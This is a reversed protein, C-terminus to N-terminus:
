RPVELQSHRETLFGLLRPWTPMAETGLGSGPWGRGWGPGPWGRGRRVARIFLSADDTPLTAANACFRPWSGSRELYQEVNSVYFAAVRAGRERVYRGVARVAKDGAFDGVVPVLLNRRHLDRVIQFREESALYSGARGDGDTATMLDAYTPQSRGGFSGTSSYNMSPGYRFLAGLVYEIWELDDGALAFGHRTVLHATVDGLNQRFFTDSREAMGVAILLDAASAERAFRQDLKRSFLRSVFEARDASLEFLAKYMLHLNLNGRRVDVIFAMAPKLAAIYTFNQEPGVGLYVRGAGSALALAPLVVQLDRENSLLNDSRFSGGPESLSSVLTWFEQDTLQAPLRSSGARGSRVAPEVMLGTLSAALVIVAFLITRRRLM